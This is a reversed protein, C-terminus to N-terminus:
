ILTAKSRIGINIFIVGTGNVGIPGAFRMCGNGYKGWIMIGVLMFSLGLLLGLLRIIIGLKNNEIQQNM